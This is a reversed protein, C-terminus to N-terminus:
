KLYRLLQVLCVQSSTDIEDLELARRGFEVFGNSKYFDILKPKEECELYVFKGGVLAQVAAITKCACHLLIDGSILDKYEDNKGIQGILPASVVYQKLESDYQGFKAIRKRLTNTLKISNKVVFSKYALAYYGVLVMKGKYSTYILHTKSFGQKDFLVAKTKLFNEVDKNSACAFGNLITSVKQEDEPFTRLVDHLAVITYKLMM